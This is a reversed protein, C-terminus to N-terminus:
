VKKLTPLMNNEFKSYEITAEFGDPIKLSVDVESMTLKELKLEKLVTPFSTFNNRGINLNTLSKLKCLDEPFVEFNNDSIDVSTLNPANNNLELVHFFNDALVLTKLSPLYNQLTFKEFNTDKIELTETNQVYEQFNQRDVELEHLLEMLKDNKHKPIEKASKEYFLRWTEKLNSFSESFPKECSFYYFLRNIRTESVAGNSFIKKVDECFIEVNTPLNQPDFLNTFEQPSHFINSLIFFLGFLSLIIKMPREEEDEYHRANDWDFIKIEGEKFLINNLHLDLHALKMRRMALLAETVQTFFKYEILRDEKNKLAEILTVPGCYETCMVMVNPDPIKNIVVEVDDEDEDESFDDEDEDEFVDDNKENKQSPFNKIFKKYEEGTFEVCFFPYALFPMHEFNSVVCKYIEWENQLKKSTKDKEFIKLIAPEKKDFFKLTCSYVTSKSKSNKNLHEIDFLHNAIEEKKVSSSFDWGFKQKRMYNENPTFNEGPGDPLCIEVSLSM